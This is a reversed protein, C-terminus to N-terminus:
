QAQIPEQQERAAAAAAEAALAAQQTQIATIKQAILEAQAADTILPQSQRLYDLAAQLSEPTGKSIAVDAKYLLPMREISNLRTTVATEMEPSIAYRRAMQLYNRMGEYDPVGSTELLADAKDLYYNFALPFIEERTYVSKLPQPPQTDHLVLFFAQGTPSFRGRSIELADDKANLYFNGSNKFSAGILLLILLAFAAAAYQISRKVPDPDNGADVTTVVPKVEEIAPRASKPAAASVEPAEPPSAPAPTEQAAPTPTEEPLETTKPASAAPTPSEPAPQPSAPPQAASAIVEEMSFPTFLVKRIREAEAPDAATIIPPAPSDGSGGSSVRQPEPQPTISGFTEFLIERQTKQPAPSAAATKGESPQAPKEIGAAKAAQKKASKKSVQDVPKSTKKKKDTSKILSNKGM